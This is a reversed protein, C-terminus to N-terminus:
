LGRAKNIIKNIFPFNIKFNTKLRLNLPIKKYGVSYNEKIDKIDSKNKALKLVRKTREMEILDYYMGNTYENYLTYMKEMKENHIRVKELNKFETASWSGTSMYRYCSMVDSFYYGKGKTLYYLALPIDGVPANLHFDPLEEFLDEKRLFLSATPISDKKNFYKKLDFTTSEKFAQIDSIFKKDESVKRAAHCCYSYDPHKEMFDFQKQLKDPSIWYDDGECVAIYKGKAMRLINMLPREGQSQQNDKQYIPRFVGPYKKEYKKIVEQTKDPSADDHILIEYKFNVEQNLFGILADEVYKEHNYTTCCITVLLEEKM